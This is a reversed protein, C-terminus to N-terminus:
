FRSLSRSVVLLNQTSAASACRGLIDPLLLLVFCGSSTIVSLEM